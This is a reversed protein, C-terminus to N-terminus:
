IIKGQLTSQFSMIFIQFRVRHRGAIHVQSLITNGQLRQATFNPCYYKSWITTLISTPSHVGVMSDM